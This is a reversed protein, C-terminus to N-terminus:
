VTPVHPPLTTLGVCRDGKSGLPYGQYENRPRDRPWLAAQIVDWHGWLSDFGRSEPKYPLTEDLQAVAHTRLVITKCFKGQTINERKVVIETVAGVSKPM